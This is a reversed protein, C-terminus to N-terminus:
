SVIRVDKSDVWLRGVKGDALVIRGKTGERVISAVDLVLVLQGEHLHSRERPVVSPYKGTYMHKRENLQMIMRARMKVNKM